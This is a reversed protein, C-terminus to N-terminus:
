VSAAIRLSNRMASGTEDQHLRPRFSSFRCAAGTEHKRPHTTVAARAHRAYHERLRSHIREPSQNAPSTPLSIRVFTSDDTAPLAFM